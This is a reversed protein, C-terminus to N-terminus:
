EYVHLVDNDQLQIPSLISLSLSDKPRCYRGKLFDVDKKSEPIAESPNYDLDKNHATHHVSLYDQHKYQCAAHDVKLQMQLRLALRTGIRSKPHQERANRSRHWILKDNIKPVRMSKSVIDAKM